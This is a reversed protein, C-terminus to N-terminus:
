TKQVVAACTSAVECPGERQLCCERGLFSLSRAFSGEVRFDQIEVRNVRWTLEDLRYVTVQATEPTPNQTAVAKIALLELISELRASRAAM